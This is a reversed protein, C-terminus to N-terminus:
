DQARHNEEGDRLPIAAYADMEAKSARALRWTWAVFVAVFLVLAIQACLSYDLWGLVDRIV